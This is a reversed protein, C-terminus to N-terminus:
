RFYYESMGVSFMNEFDCFGPVEEMMAAVAEDSGFYRTDDTFDELERFHEMVIARYAPANPTLPRAVANRVYSWRLPHLDFSSTSHVVQWNHYFEEDSVNPPKGNAGVQTVGPRRKGDEWSPDFPQVISETVLYGTISTSGKALVAELPARQDLSAHWFSVVASVAEFPGILRGPAEQALTENLDAVQITVSHAGNGRLDTVLAGLLWSSFDAQSQDPKRTLFYIMKEMFYEGNLETILQLSDPLSVRWAM